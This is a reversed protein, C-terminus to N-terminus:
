APCIIPDPVLLRIEEKLNKECNIGTIIVGAVILIAAGVAGGAALLVCWGVKGAFAVKFEKMRGDKDLECTASRWFYERKFRVGGEPLLEVSKFGKTNILINYRNM